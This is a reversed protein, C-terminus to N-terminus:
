MTLEKYEMSHGLYANETEGIAVIHLASMVEYRVNICDCFDRIYLSLLAM